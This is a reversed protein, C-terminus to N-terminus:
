FFREEVVITDGPLVPDTMRAKVQQTSADHAILVEDDVARYTFGGALAVAKYVSLGSQYPFSGPRRVEGLIFFPRYQLVSVNVSAKRIYGNDELGQAIAHEVELLSKGEAQISGILPFAIYGEPDVDFEGSLDTNEFVIVRIQDGPALRYPEKGAQMAAVSPAVAVSLNPAASSKATVSAKPTARAAATVEAVSKSTATTKRAAVKKSAAATKSTAATKPTAVANPAATPVQSASVHTASTYQRSDSCGTLIAAALLVFFGIKLDTGGRKSGLSTVRRRASDERYGTDPVIIKRPSRTSRRATFRLFGSGGCRFQCSSARWAPWSPAAWIGSIRGAPGGGRVDRLALGDGDGVGVAPLDDVGPREGRGVHVLEHRHLVAAGMEAPQARHRAVAEDGVAAPRDERQHLVDRGAHVVGQQRGAVGLAIALEAGFPRV